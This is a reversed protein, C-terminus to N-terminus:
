KGQLSDPLLTSHWTCRCQHIMRCLKVHHFGSIREAASLFLASVQPDRSMASGKSTPDDLARRRGEAAPAVTGAAPGGQGGRPGPPPERRSLLPQAAARVRSRPWFARPHPTDSARRPQPPDPPLPPTDRGGGTLALASGRPRLRGGPPQRPPHAASAPTGRPQPGAGGPGASHRGAPPILLPCGPALAQFRARTPPPIGLPPEAQGAEEPRRKAAPLKTGRDKEEM